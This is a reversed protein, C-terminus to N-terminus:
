QTLGGAGNGSRKFHLLLPINGWLRLSRVLMEPNKKRVERSNMPVWPTGGDSGSQLDAEGLLTYM